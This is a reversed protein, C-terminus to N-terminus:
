LITRVIRAGENNVVITGVVGKHSAIRKLTEEIEQSQTYIVLIFILITLKKKFYITFARAIFYKYIVMKANTQIQIQRIDILYAFFQKNRVFGMEM